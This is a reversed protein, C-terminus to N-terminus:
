LCIRRPGLLDRLTAPGRGQGRGSDRVPADEPYGRGWGLFRHPRRTEGEAGGSGHWGCLMSGPERYRLRMRHFAPHPPSREAPFLSPRGNTNTHVWENIARYYPAYLSDFTTTSCFTSAQTGFDTGCVFLVDIVEGVAEHVRQLNELAIVLQRSFVEHLYDQRVATSIYWEEIDRIGRPKKLFPAPVLAIDGFATGGVGGVVARHTSALRGAQDRYHQLDAESLPKFEELNDEPDLADEDIPDQRIITDFFYGGAPMHGSPEAELDGEPYLLLGGDTAGTTRFHESVLVEQGWPARFTKWNENRFGFITKPAPLAATDVGLVDALDEEIEGLMQYPEWVKVPHEELGYHSRLGAVCSVHMGTVATSGFDIPVRDPARHNLTSRVREKSTM